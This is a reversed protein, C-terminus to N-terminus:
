LDWWHSLVLLTQLILLLCILRSKAFFHIFDVFRLSESNYRGECCDGKYRSGCVCPSSASLVTGGNKCVPCTQNQFTEFANSFNCHKLCNELNHPIADVRCCFFRKRNQKQHGCNGTCSGWSRWPFIYCDDYGDPKCKEITVVTFLASYSVVLFLLFGFMTKLVSSIIQNFFVGVCCIKRPIYLRISWVIFHFSLLKKSFM